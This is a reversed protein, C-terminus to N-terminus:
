VSLIELKAYKSSSLNEIENFLMMFKTKEEKTLSTGKATYLDLAADINNHCDIITFIIMFNPIVVTEVSFIFQCYKDFSRFIGNKYTEERFVDVLDSKYITLLNKHSLQLSESRGFTINESETIHDVYIVNM